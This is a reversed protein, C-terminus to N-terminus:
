SQAQQEYVKNRDEDFFYEKKPIDLWFTTEDASVGGKDLPLATINQPIKSSSHEFSELMQNVRFEYGIRPVTMMKIDNYSMRLFFEYYHSLKISEKMPYYRGDREESYEELESIRYVGGLPNLCNFRLLLNTDFKGAEESFGEAWSVENMLGALGGNQINRLVPFFFGVDENEEMYINALKYWNANIVDEVEIISMAEYERELAINFLDNFIKSFNSTSTKVVELKIGADAEVINEEIEGGENKSLTKIKPNDAVEMLKELEKDSLGGDLIVLDVPHQQNAIGFLCESLQGEHRIKDLYLGVLINSKSAKSNKSEKM